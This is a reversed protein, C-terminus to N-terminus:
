SAACSAANADDRGRASPKATPPALRKLQTRAPTRQRGRGRQRGALARRPGPARGASPDTRNRSTVRLVPRYLREACLSDGPRRCSRHGPQAYLARRRRVPRGQDQLPGRLSRPYSRTAVVRPSGPVDLVDDASFTEAGEVAAPSFGGYRALHAIFRLFPPRRLYPLMHILTSDGTLKPRRLTPEDASHILVRAGAERLAAALGTHDVDTHTLVLADVDGPDHGLLSLDSLLTKRYGPLGADVATLRGGEEVLYWNVLSSGLRHVGPAIDRAPPGASM